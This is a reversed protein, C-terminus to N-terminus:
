PTWPTRRHTDVDVRVAGVEVAKNLAAATDDLWLTAPVTRFASTGQLLM